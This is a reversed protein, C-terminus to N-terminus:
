EALHKLLHAEVFYRLLVYSFLVFIFALVFTFILVFAAGKIVASIFANALYPEPILGIYTPLLVLAISVIFGSVVISFYSFFIEKFDEFVSVWLVALFFLTAFYAEPPLELGLIPRYAIGGPVQSFRLSKLVHFAFYEFAMFTYLLFSPVFVLILSKKERFKTLLGM